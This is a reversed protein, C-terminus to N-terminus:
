LTDLTSKSLSLNELDLHSMMVLVVMEVISVLLKELATMGACASIKLKM